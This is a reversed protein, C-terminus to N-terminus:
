LSEVPVCGQFNPGPVLKYNEIQTLYYQSTTYAHVTRRKQVKYFFALDSEEDKIKELSSVVEAKEGASCATFSKNFESQTFDRFDALGQIYKEQEEKKACDNIMKLVFLHAMLDKSGPSDTAPIITESLEALIEEDEASINIQDLAISAKKDSKCYPLFTIGVSVILFQKLATRRDLM